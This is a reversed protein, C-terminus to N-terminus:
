LKLDPELGVGRIRTFQVGVTKESSFRFGNQNAWRSMKNISGQIQREWISMNCSFFSIQIADVFLSSSVGPPIVKGISNIKIAFLAVTLISGQPVDNERFFSKSLAM